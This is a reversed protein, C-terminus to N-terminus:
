RVAVADSAAFTGGDLYAGTLTLMANPAAVIAKVAGEDFKAVLHGRADAKTYLAAIGELEVTSRDVAGLPVNTHVTVEGGQDFGLLLTSPSVAIAVDADGDTRGNSLADGVLLVAACLALVPILVKSM